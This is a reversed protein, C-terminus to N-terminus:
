VSVKSLHEQLPLSARYHKMPNPKPWAALLQGKQSIIITFKIARLRLDAPQKVEPVKCRDHPEHSGYLLFRFGWSADSDGAEDRWCSM